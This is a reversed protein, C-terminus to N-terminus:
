RAAQARQAEAKPTEPEATGRGAPRSGSRLDPRPTEKQRGSSSAPGGPDDFEVAGPGPQGSCKSASRRRILAITCSPAWCCSTAEVNVEQCASISRRPAVGGCSSTGRGRRPGPEQGRQAVRTRPMWGWNPGVVAQGRRRSTRRQAVWGPVTSMTKRVPKGSVTSRGGYKWRPGLSQRVGDFV